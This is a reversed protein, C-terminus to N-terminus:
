NSDILNNWHEQAIFPTNAYQLHQTEQVCYQNVQLVCPIFYNKYDREFSCNQFTCTTQFLIHGKDLQLFVGLAVRCRSADSVIMRFIWQQFSRSTATRQNSKSFVSAIFIILNM